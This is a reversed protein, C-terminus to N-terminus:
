QQKQSMKQVAKNKLKELKAMPMTWLDEDEASGPEAEEPTV